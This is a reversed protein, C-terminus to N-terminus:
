EGTALFNGLVRNTANLVARAVGHSISGDSAPATGILRRDGGTEPDVVGLAVIAVSDDFAKVAKVGILRFSMRGGLLKHLADLTAQACVRLDIAGHGHATAVGRYEVARWELAIEAQTRTDASHALQADVLRVRERPSQHQWPNSM